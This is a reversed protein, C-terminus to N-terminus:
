EKKIELAFPGTPDNSFSHLICQGIVIYTTSDLIHIEKETFTVLWEEELAKLAKEISDTRVGWDAVKVGDLSGVITYSSIKSSRSERM